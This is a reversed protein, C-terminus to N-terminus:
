FPIVDEGKLASLLDYQRQHTNYAYQQSFADIVTDHARKCETSMAEREKLLRDRIASELRAGLLTTLMMRVLHWVFDSTEETTLHRGIGELTNTFRITVGGREQVRALLHHKVIESGEPTAYALDGARFFAEDYIEVTSGDDEKM